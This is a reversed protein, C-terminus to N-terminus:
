ANGRLDYPVSYWDCTLDTGALTAGISRNDRPLIPIATTADDATLHCAIANQVFEGPPGGTIEYTAPPLDAFTVVGAPDTLGTRSIPATISFDLNAVPSACDQAYNTGAYEVPCALNRITLTATGSTGAIPQPTEAVTAAAPGRTFSGLVLMALLLFLTM